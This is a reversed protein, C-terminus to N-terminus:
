KVRRSINDPMYEIGQLKKIGEVKFSWYRGKNGRALKVRRGSFASTFEPQGSADVYASVTYEDDGNMYMYPVNKSNFVGFDFAKGWAVGNVQTEIDMDGSLEYLGDASIGYYTNGIRTLHFFPFNQYRSVQNSRLNMVVAAAYTYESETIATFDSSFGRGIVQSRYLESAFGRGTVVIGTSGVGALIPHTGFSKGAVEIREPAKVSTTLNSRFGKGAVVAGGLVSVSSSFGRGTVRSDFSPEYDASLVTTFGRGSIYGNDTTSVAIIPQSYFPAGEVVAGGRIAVNATFSGGTVTNREYDFTITPLTVFGRGVPPYEPLANFAPTYGSLVVSLQGTILQTSDFVYVGGQNSLPGEWSSAGVVVVSGDASLAVGAGFADSDAADSAELVSGRQVWTSGSRDFIYVGGRNTGTAEWSNAGVALVNGDASLAVSTGFQDNSAADSAGLVSGRQTWASGSRDYVYVGGQDSTGGEWLLSGVALVNGDASLSISGGFWDNAEADSAELVSGRQVWSSGSRDYVYVGGQDSAGGEWLLAGVALTNGDASLAVSRGFADNAAADSATLVSGRQVWTSGSRDYIYVGGQDNNAGEWDQTGVALVNGDASLAVSRGFRDDVTADSATLVSGRQVWTSGSRDYIYVGGQGDNAGEWLIAGVALTSGDASVAVSVGFLDLSAADSATLVSGRQVWDAM